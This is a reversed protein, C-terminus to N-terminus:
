AVTELPFTASPIAEAGAWAMVASLA